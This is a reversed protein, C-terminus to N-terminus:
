QRSSKHQKLFVNKNVQLLDLEQAGAELAQIVIPLEEVTPIIIGAENNKEM